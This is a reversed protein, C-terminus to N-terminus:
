APEGARQGPAEGGGGGRWRASKPLGAPDPQPSRALDRASQQARGQGVRPAHADASRRARRLTRLAQNLYSLALLNSLLLHGLFTCAGTRWYGIRAHLWATRREKAIKMRPGVFREHRTKVM